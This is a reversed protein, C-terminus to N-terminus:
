PEDCWNSVRASYSWVVRGCVNIFPVEIDRIITEPGDWYQPNTFDLTGGDVNFGIFTGNGKIEGGRFTIGGEIYAFESLPKTITFDTHEVDIASHRALQIAREESCYVDCQILMLSSSSQPVRIRGRIICHSVALADGTLTVPGDIEFGNVHSPWAHPPTAGELGHIKPSELGRVTIARPVRIREPYSGPSVLVTDGPSTADIARQITTVDDPVRITAAHCKATAIVVLMGALMGITAVKTHTM